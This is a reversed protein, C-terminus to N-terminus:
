PTCLGPQSTSDTDTLHFSAVEGSASLCYSDTASTYTYNYTTTSSNTVDAQSLSTPYGGHDYKYRSLKSAAGKLDAELAQKAANDTVAGYSVITIGALIGIVIIVVLVEVITFGGARSKHIMKGM